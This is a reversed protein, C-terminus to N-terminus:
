SQSPLRRATFCILHIVLDPYCRRRVEATMEDVRSQLLSGAEKMHPDWATAIQLLFAIDWLRYVSDGASRDCSGLFALMEEVFQKFVSRVWEGQQEVDVSVGM